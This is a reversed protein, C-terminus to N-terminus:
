EVSSIDHSREYGLALYQCDPAITDNQIMQVQGIGTEDGDEESQIDGFVNCPSPNYIPIYGILDPRFDFFDSNLTWCQVDEFREYFAPSFSYLGTNSNKTWIDCLEHPWRFRLNTCFASVFQNSHKRKEPSTSLIFLDRVDPRIDDIYVTRHVFLCLSRVV